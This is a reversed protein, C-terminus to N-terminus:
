KSNLHTYDRIVTNLFRIGNTDPEVGMKMAIREKTKDILNQYIIESASIKHNLVDKIIQIDSDSLVSVQTYVADYTEKTEPVLIDELKVQEKIKIVTTNAALDGLRQGKGNILITILGVAGYTFFVDIPKLIWRLFYSGIGPQTGDIKVVKIKIIKKGPSQGNFFVEFIFDYFFAPLYLIIILAVPYYYRSNSYYDIVYIWLLITAFFYGGLILSDIIQALVREGLSAIRYNINVNQTTEIGINEM